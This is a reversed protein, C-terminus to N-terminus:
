RAREAASMIAKDLMDFFTELAQSLIVAEDEIGTDPIETAKLTLVVENAVAVLNREFDPQRRYQRLLRTAFEQMGTLVVGAHAADRRLAEYRVQLAAFDEGTTKTEHRILRALEHAADHTLALGAVPRAGAQDFGQTGLTVEYVGSNRQEAGIVANAYVVPVDPM